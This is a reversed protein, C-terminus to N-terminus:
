TKFKKRNNGITMLKKKLAPCAHAKIVELDVSIKLSVTNLSLISIKPRLNITYKSKRSKAPYFHTFKQEMM